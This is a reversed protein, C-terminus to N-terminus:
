GRPPPPALPIPATAPEVPVDLGSAAGRVVQSWALRGYLYFCAVQESSFKAWDYRNGQERWFVEYGPPAGDTAADMVLCWHDDAEVGISIIEPPVGLRALWVPLQDAKM